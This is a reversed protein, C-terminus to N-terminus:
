ERYNAPGTSLRVAGLFHKVWRYGRIYFFLMSFKLGSRHHSVCVLSWEKEVPSLSGRSLQESAAV